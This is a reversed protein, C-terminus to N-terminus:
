RLLSVLLVLAVILAGRDTVISPLLGAVGYSPQAADFMVELILGLPGAAQTLKVLLEVRFAQLRGRWAVMGTANGVVYIRIVIRFVTAEAAAEM